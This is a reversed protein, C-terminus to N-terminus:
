VIVMRQQRQSSALLWAVIWFLVVNMVSTLALADPTIPQDMHQYQYLLVIVTSLLHLGVFPLVKSIRHALVYRTFMGAIVFVCLGQAALVAGGGQHGLGITLAGECMGVICSTILPHQWPIVTLAARDWGLCGYVVWIYGMAIVSQSLLAASDRSDSVLVFTDHWALMSQGVVILTGGIWLMQARRPGRRAVFASLQQITLLMGGIVILYLLGNQLQTSV